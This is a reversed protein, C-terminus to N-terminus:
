AHMSRLKELAGEAEAITSAPLQMRQARELTSILESEAVKLMTAATGRVVVTSDRGGSRCSHIASARNAAQFAKSLNRTAAERELALRAAETLAPDVGKEMAENLLREAKKLNIPVKFADNMEQEAKSRQVKKEVKVEERREEEQEEEPRTQKRVYKTSAATVAATSAAAAEAGGPPLTYSEQGGGGEDGGSEDGDAEEEADEAETDAEAGAVDEVEWGALLISAVGLPMASAGFCTELSLAMVRIPQTLPVLEIRFSRRCTATGAADPMLTSLGQQGTSRVLPAPELLQIQLDGYDSWSVNLRLDGLQDLEVHFSCHASAQAAATAVRRSLFSLSITSAEVAQEFRVKLASDSRSAFWALSSDACDAQPPLGLVNCPEMAARCASANHWGESLAHSAVYAAPIAPIHFIANFAAHLSVLCFSQVLAWLDFFLAAFAQFYATVQGIAFGHLNDLRIADALVVFNLIAVLGKIPSSRMMAGTTNLRSLMTRMWPSVVPPPQGVPMRPSPGAPMRPSPEASSGADVITVSSPPLWRVVSPPLWRVFLIAHARVSQMARDAGQTCVDELARKAVTTRERFQVVWVIGLYEGLLWGLCDSMQILTCFGFIFAAALPVRHLNSLLKSGANLASVGMAAQILEPFFKDEDIKLCPCIKRAATTGVTNARAAVDDRLAAAQQMSKEVRAKSRSIAEPHWSKRSLRDFRDAGATGNSRVENASNASTDTADSPRRSNAPPLQSEPLEESPEPPLEIPTVLFSVVAFATFTFAVFISMASFLAKMALYMIGFPLLFAVVLAVAASSPM